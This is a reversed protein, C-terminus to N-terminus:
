YYYLLIDTYHNFDILNLFLAEMKNVDKLSYEPFSYQIQGNEICEDDWFKSITLTAIMLFIRWNKHTLYFNHSMMLKELYILAIVSFHDGSNSLYMLDGMFNGIDTELSLDQFEDFHNDDMDGLMGSRSHVFVHCNPIKPTRVKAPIERYLQEDFLSSAQTAHNMHSADRIYNSLILCVTDFIKQANPLKERVDCRGTTEERWGRSPLRKKAVLTPRHHNLSHNSRWETGEHDFYSSNAATSARTISGNDYNTFSLYDDPNQHSSTLEDHEYDILQDRVSKYNLPSGPSDWHSSTSAGM